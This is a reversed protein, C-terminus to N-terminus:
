DIGLEIITVEPPVGIRAPIVGVGIGATVILKSDGREYLGWLYKAALRGVNVWRGLYPVALQGGHTHGAVVLDAGYEACLEFIDPHHSAVLTFDVTSKSIEEKLAAEVAQDSENTWWEGQSEIGTLQLTRPNQEDAIEISVSTSRLL